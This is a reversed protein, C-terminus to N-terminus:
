EEAERPKEDCFQKHHFVSLGPLDVKSIKIDPPNQLNPRKIKEVEDKARDDDRRHIPAVDIQGPM